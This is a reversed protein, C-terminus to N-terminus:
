KERQVTSIQKIQQNRHDTLEKVASEYIKKKQKTDLDYPNFNLSIVARGDQRAFSSISTGTPGHSLVSGPLATTTM